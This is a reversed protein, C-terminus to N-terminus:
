PKAARNIPAQREQTCRRTKKSFAKAQMAANEEFVSKGCVFTARPRRAVIM